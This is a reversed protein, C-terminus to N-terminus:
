RVRGVGAKEVAKLREEFDSQKVLEAYQMLVYALKSGDEKPRKGQKMERYLKGMERRVSQMNHLNVRPTPILNGSQSDVTVPLRKTGKKRAAGKTSHSKM